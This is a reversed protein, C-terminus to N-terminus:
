PSVDDSTTSVASASCSRSAAAQDAPPARGRAVGRHHARELVAVVGHM